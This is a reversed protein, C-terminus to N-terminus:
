LTGLISGIFQGLALVLYLDKDKSDRHSLTCVNINMVLSVFPAMPSSPSESLLIVIKILVKYEEPLHIDQFTTVLNTFFQGFEKMNNSPYLIMQSFNTCSANQIHLNYPHVKFSAGKGQLAYQNCWFFYASTFVQGHNAPTYYTLSPISHFCAILYEHLTEKMNAPIASYIFTM